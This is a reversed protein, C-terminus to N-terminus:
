FWRGGGAIILVTSINASGINVLTGNKLAIHTAGGGGGYSSSAGGTIAVLGETEKEEM